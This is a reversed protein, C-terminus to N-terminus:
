KPRADNVYLHGIELVVGHIIPFVEDTKHVEFIAVDDYDQYAVVDHAIEVEMVGAHQLCEEESYVVQYVNLYHDCDFYTM